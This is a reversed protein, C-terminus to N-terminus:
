LPIDPLFHSHTLLNTLDMKFCNYNVSFSFAASPSVPRQFVRIGLIVSNERQL